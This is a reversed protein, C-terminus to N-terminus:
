RLRSLHYGHPALKASIDPDGTWSSLQNRMSQQNDTWELPLHQTVEQTHDEIADTLVSPEPTRPHHLFAFMLSLAAVPVLTWNLWNRPSFRAQSAIAHLARAKLPASDIPESLVACRVLCDLYADSSRTYCDACDALHSEFDLREDQTLDNRCAATYQFERCDM